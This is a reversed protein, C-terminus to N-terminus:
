EPEWKEEPEIKMEKIKHETEERMMKEEFDKQKEKAQALVRQMTEESFVEKHNVEKANANIAVMAIICEEPTYGIEALESGNMYTVTEWEDFGSEILLKIRDPPLHDCLKDILAEM